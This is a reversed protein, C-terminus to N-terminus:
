QDGFAIITVTPADEAAGGNDSSEVGIAGAALSILRTQDSGSCAVPAYNTNAFNTALNATYLGTGNDTLSGVNVDDRIAITGTGNFNVWVKPISDKYLRDAVPTAPAADLLMISGKVEDNQNYHNFAAEYTLTVSKDDDQVSNTITDTSGKDINVGSVVNGTAGSEIYILQTYTKTNDETGINVGMIRNDDGNLRIAKTLHVGEIISVGYLRCAGNLQINSTAPISAGSTSLGFVDIGLTAGSLLIQQASPSTNPNDAAINYVKLGIGGNIRFAIGASDIIRINAFMSTDDITTFSLGQTGKGDCDLTFDKMIINTKSTASIAEGSAGTLRTLITRDIGACEFVTGTTIALTDVYGYNKPGFVVTAGSSVSNIAALIATDDDTSGDGAAGWWEPKVRTGEPFTTTGSGTFHQHDTIGSTDSNSHTLVKGSSITLLADPHYVVRTAANITHSDDITWAGDDFYLNVEPDASIASIAAKLATSDFSGHVDAVDYLFGSPFGGFGLQINDFTIENAGDSDTLVVKYNGQGYLGTAFRGNSDLDQSTALDTGDKDKPAKPDTDGSGAEFFEATGNAYAPNGSALFHFFEINAM